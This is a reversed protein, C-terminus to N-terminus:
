KAPTSLTPHKPLTSNNTFHLGTTGERPTSVSFPVFAMVHNTSKAPIFCYMIQAPKPLIM